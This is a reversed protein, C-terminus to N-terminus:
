CMKPDIKSCKKRKLNIPRMVWTNSITALM